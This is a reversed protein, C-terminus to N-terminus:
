IIYTNISHKNIKDKVMNKINFSIDENTNNLVTIVIDKDKLSAIVKLKKYKSALVLQERHLSIHRLYHYIPTIILEDEHRLIPAKVYNKKHNPGGYEDLLLNWDIFINMGNNINGIIENAYLEADNIWEFENYPSFGCSMESEILLLNPYKDHVKKLEKFHSGTYWHFAIAGVKDDDVYLKDISKLLDDKNHDHLMITTNLDYKRLLPAMYHKIFVKMAHNSWLCSEWKQYAHPENQISLFDINVGQEKYYLIYKILYRAYRGYCLRRLRNIIPFKWIRPPTWPSALYSPHFDRIKDLLPEINIEDEKMNIGFPKYYDYSYEAFDCSGIPLRIYKYKLEKFYANLLKNKNYSDLQKYNATSAPTLAAGMGSFFSITKNPNIVIEEDIDKVNILEGEDFKIGKNINTVFKKM